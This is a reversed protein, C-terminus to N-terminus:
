RLGPDRLQTLEHLMLLSMTSPPLTVNIEHTEEVRDEELSLHMAM